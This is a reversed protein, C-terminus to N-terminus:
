RIVAYLTKERTKGNLVLSLKIAVKVAKATDLPKVALIWTGPTNDAVLTASFPGEISALAPKGEPPLDLIRLKASKPEPRAGRKWFLLQPSLSVEELIDATFSLIHLLPEDTKIQIFHEQPGFRGTSDFSLALEWRAGPAIIQETSGAKMCACGTKIELIRVPKTGSNRCSFRLPIPGQTKLTGLEIREADWKLVSAIVYGGEEASLPAICLFFFLAAYRVPM